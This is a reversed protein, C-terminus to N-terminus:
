ESENEDDEIYLTEVYLHRDKVTIFTKNKLAGSVGFFKKLFAIILGIDM